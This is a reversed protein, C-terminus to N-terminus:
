ISIREVINRTVERKRRDYLRTTRPDAHGALHQVDELPVGQELLDTITTARFTHCTLVNAPLGAEKFRRKVMRLVDKGKMGNATLTKTKGKATRWLPADADDGGIGAAEIYDRVYGEADHRAPIDRLKGGKEDFRFVWQRGDNYFDRLRLKAVAGARGATYVMAGIIARDRLGVLNSVDISRLVHRAQDSSIAPTKGESVQYKPGKVSSAPNLIVAHRVVLRDFFQRIAALHLKQTPKSAPSGKRTTLGRIYGAVAGPSVRQLEFGRDECWALFRNVAYRYAVHTNDNELEAEFFESYAFMAAKGADEVIAPPRSGRETTALERPEIKIIENSMPEAEM